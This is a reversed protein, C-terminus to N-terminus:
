MFMPSPPRFSVHAIPLFCVRNLDKIWVTCSNQRKDHALLQGPFVRGPVTDEPFRIWTQQPCVLEAMTVEVDPVLSPLLKALTSACEIVESSCITTM